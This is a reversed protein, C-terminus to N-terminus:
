RMDPLNSFSFIVPTALALRSPWSTVLSHLARRLYGEAQVKPGAQEDVYPLRRAQRVESREDGIKAVLIRVRCHRQPAADKEHPSAHVFAFPTNRSLGRM